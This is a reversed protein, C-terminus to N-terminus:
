DDGSEGESRVSFSPVGSACRVVVSVHLGSEDERGEFEVDVEDDERHVEARFGNAPQATVLPSAGSGCAAVVSGARGQWTRREETAPPLSQETPTSTPQPTSTPSESPTASTSPASSSPAPTSPATSPTSSPTASPTRSPTRSPRASSTRSPTPSPAAGASTGATALPQDSAVLDDGARSIVVWVLASVSAVVALWALAAGLVRQRSM